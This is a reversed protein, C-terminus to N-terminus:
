RLVGTAEATARQEYDPLRMVALLGAVGADADEPLFYGISQMESFYSHLIRMRQDDLARVLGESWARRVETEVKGRQYLYSFVLDKGAPRKVKDYKKVIKSFGIALPLTKASTELKLNHAEVYSQLAAIDSERFGRAILQPGVVDMRMTPVLDTLVEPFPNWQPFLRYDISFGSEYKVLGVASLDELPRKEELARELQWTLEFHALALAKDSVMEVPSAERLRAFSASYSEAQAKLEAGGKAMPAKVKEDFEVARASGAFSALVLAMAPLWALVRPYSSVHM